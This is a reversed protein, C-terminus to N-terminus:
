DRLRSRFPKGVRHYGIFDFVADAAKRTLGRNADAVSSEPLQRTDCAIVIHGTDEAKDEEHTQHSDCRDTSSPAQHITLPKGDADVHHITFFTLNACVEEDDTASPNFAACTACTRKIINM